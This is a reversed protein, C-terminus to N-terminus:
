KDKNKLNETAIATDLSGRARKAKGVVEFSVKPVSESDELVEVTNGM